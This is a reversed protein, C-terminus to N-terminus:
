IWDFEEEPDLVIAWDPVFWEDSNVDQVVYLKDGHQYGVGEITVLSGEPLSRTNVGDTSHVIYTTLALTM